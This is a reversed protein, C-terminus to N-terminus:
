TGRSRVSRWRSSSPLGPEQVDARGLGPGVVRGGEVIVHGVIPDLLVSTRGTNPRMRRLSRGSCTRTPDSARSVSAPDIAVEEGGREPEAEM